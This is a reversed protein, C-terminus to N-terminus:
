NQNKNISIGIFLSVVAAISTILVWFKRKRFFSTEEIKEIKRNKRKRSQQSVRSSETNHSDEAMLKEFRQAEERALKEENERRKEDGSL